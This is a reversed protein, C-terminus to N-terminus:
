GDAITAGKQEVFLHTRPPLYPQDHTLDSFYQSQLPLLSIEIPFDREDTVTHLAQWAPVLKEIDIEANMTEM